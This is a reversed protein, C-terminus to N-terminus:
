LVFFFPISTLTTSRMLARGCALTGKLVVCVNGEFLSWCRAEEICLVLLRPVFLLTLSKIRPLLLQRELPPAIWFVFAVLLLLSLTILTTTMQAFPVILCDGYDPPLRGRLYTFPEPARYHVSPHLNVFIVAKFAASNHLFNSLVAYRNSCPPLRSSRSDTM